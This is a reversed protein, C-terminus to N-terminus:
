QFQCSIVKNTKLQLQGFGTVVVEKGSGTASERWLLLNLTTPGQGVPMRKPMDAIFHFLGLYPLFFYEWPFKTIGM